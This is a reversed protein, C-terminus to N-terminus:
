VHARGIETTPSKYHHTLKKIMQTSLGLNGLELYVQSYDKCDNYDEIIKLATAEKVGKVKCLSKIDERDLISLVDDYTNFLDEVQKKTLVHSLFEKQKDKSSLNIKKNMFIIDYTDGYKDNTELLNAKVVYTAGYEIAPCIGKLKIFKMSKDTVVKGKLPNTIMGLFICYTGSETSTVGKPYFLKNVAIECEVYEIENNEM